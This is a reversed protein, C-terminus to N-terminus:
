FPLLTIFNFDPIAVAVNKALADRVRSLLFVEDHPPILVDYRGSRLREGLCRLFGCPNTTFSPCRYWRRVLTSIRCQCLANPDLIDITHQPALDYVLQRASISSGETFLISLKRDSKTEAAPFM